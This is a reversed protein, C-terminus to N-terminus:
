SAWLLALALVSLFLGARSDFRRGDLVGSRLRNPVECGRRNLRDHPQLDQRAELAAPRGARTPMSLTPM